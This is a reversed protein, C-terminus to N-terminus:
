QQQQQQHHAYPGALVVRTTFYAAALEESAEGTSRLVRALLSGISVVDLEAPDAFALEAAIRGLAREPRESSGSIARISGLCRELCYLVARPFRRERLLFDIVREARLEDRQQKRAAEFAGCSKLLEALSASTVPTQPALVLAPARAALVRATMDARELHTGLELFEYAEGRSLTAKMVGQFAHSGERITAFVDHPGALAMAPASEALLLHLRNLQEWMESTIQERVGRANMRARAVCATVADPNAPHRLLFETVAAATYEPFHERFLDDRGVLLLLERWAPGRDPLDADLLAHFRAHLLRSTDEAREMYRGTWYLSEAVRSLMLLPAGLHGQQRRGAVLERDALRAAAGGAHPRRPRREDRARLARVPAPRRPGAAARGRLDADPQPRDAAARRVAGPRGRHEPRFARREAATSAPGILMGYGGSGDVTKVVLEELHELIYRRESEDAASYTPVNALVPEEDLYYRIMEPVYAYVAKDDAVGTGPANALTVNGARYANFIGAAGLMSDPRFVLPDLFEDDVRRYIVDVRRLGHTTRM